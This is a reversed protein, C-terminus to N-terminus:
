NDASEEFLRCRQVAYRIFAVTEEIESETAARGSNHRGEWAQEIVPASHADLAGQAWCAATAKSVVDGHQLTYLMRCATLVVYSQFGRHRILGLERTVQAGWGPMVASMAQRLEQPSIPDILTSPAPGALTIGHERVVWRHVLWGIDDPVMKLREGVGREINPMPANTALWRKLARQSIYSGELQIAWITDLTAIRDHMAQLALFLEGGVEVDTVVIFDIDSDADFDGTALSGDLYMGIFHEGLIPQVGEYLVKLLTNVEPYPTPNAVPALKL